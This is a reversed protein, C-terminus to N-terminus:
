PIRGVAIAALRLAADPGNGRVKFVALDMLIGGKRVAVLHSDGGLPGV